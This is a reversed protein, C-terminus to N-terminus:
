RISQDTISYHQAFLTHKSTDALRIPQQRDLEPGGSGLLADLEASQM